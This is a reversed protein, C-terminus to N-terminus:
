EAVQETVDVLNRSIKEFDLNYEDNKCRARFVKIGPDMKVFYKKLQEIAADSVLAGIYVSQILSVPFKLWQESHENSDTILRWEKFQRRAYNQTLLIKKPNFEIEPIVGVMHGVYSKQNVTTAPLKQYHVAECQEFISDTSSKFKIAAGTHSFGKTEWLALEQFKEFLPVVRKSSVYDIWAQHCEKAQNFEKDIMTPLLGQLAEKIEAEDNFRNEMRWRMIAKLLPHNPQGRPASKDLIAHIIYKMTSDFLAKVGFAMPTNRSPLFPDNLQHAEFLPLASKSLIQSIGQLNGFYTLTAPLDTM